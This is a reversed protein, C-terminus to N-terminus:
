SLIHFEFALQERVSPDSLDMHFRSEMKHIRYLLTNRHMFLKKSADGANRECRLYHFLIQLDNTGHEKDYLFVKKVVGNNVSYSVLDDNAMATQVVFDTFYDKFLYLPEEPQDVLRIGLSQSMGKGSEIAHAAQKFAFPLEKIDDFLNSVGVSCGNAAIIPRISAKIAELDSSGSELLLIYQEFTGIVSYPFFDKMHRIRFDTLSNENEGTPFSAALLRFSNFRNAGLETLREALNQHSLPQYTILDYFLKSAALSTPSRRDWDAQALRQMHNVLIQYTDILAPSPLRRNCHMTICVFYNSSVKFVYDMTPYKTIESAPKPTIGDQTEWDRLVHYKKFEEITHPTHRGQQVLEMSLRDDIPINKTWALLAFESNLVSIFNGFVAESCNLLKQYGGNDLLAEKMTEVWRSIAIILLQAKQIAELPSDDTELVLTRRLSSGKAAVAEGKQAICVGQVQTFTRLLPFLTQATGVIVVNEEGGADIAQKVLTTAGGRAPALCLHSFFRSMHKAEHMVQYGLYESLMNLTIM